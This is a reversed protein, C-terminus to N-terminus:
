PASKPPASDPAIAKSPPVGLVVSFWTPYEADPSGALQAALKRYSADFASSLEFVRLSEEPRFLRGTVFSSDGAEGRERDFPQKSNVYEAHQQEGRAYSALFRVSKEISSGSPSTYHYYDRGRTRFALALSLLPELTYCHYHLADREHFDFSSGDPRLNKEIQQQLLPEIAAILTEDHLLFACLGATKIRHSFNNNYRTPPLSRSRLVKDHVERLWAEVEAREPPSFTPALWDCAWLMPEFKTDNIADGTSHCTRAWALIFRRAQAAFDPQSNVLWASTLTQIKAMDQLSALSRIRDPDSKLRGQSIIQPVPHPEEKLLAPASAFILVGQARAASSSGLLGRVEDPSPAFATGAVTTAATLVWLM